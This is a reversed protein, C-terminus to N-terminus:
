CLSLPRRLKLQPVEPSDCLVAKWYHLSRSESVQQDHYRFSTRRTTKKATDKILYQYETASGCYFSPSFFEAQSTTSNCRACYRWLLGLLKNKRLEVFVRFFTVTHAGNLVFYCEFLTYM